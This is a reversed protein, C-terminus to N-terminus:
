LGIERMANYLCSNKACERPGLQPGPTGRLIMLVSRAAAQCEKSLPGCVDDAEELYQYDCAIHSTGCLYCIQHVGCLPLLEQNLDGSLLDVGRCREAMAEIIPCQNSGWIYNKNGLYADNLPELRRPGSLSQEPGEFDNSLEPYRPYNNNKKMKKKVQTENESKEGFDEDKTNSREKKILELSNHTGDQVNLPDIINRLLHNESDMSQRLKQLARRMKELSYATALRSLVRDKVRQIEEPNDIGEHAGTYKITEGIIFDEISQLKKDMNELKEPDLKGRSDKDDIAMTDFQIVSRKKMDGNNSNGDGATMAKKKRDLGFYNSWDVSKKQRMGKEDNRSKTLTTAHKRTASERKRKRENQEGDTEQDHEQENNDEGESEDQNESEEQEEDGEEEHSERSSPRNSRKGHQHEKLSHGAHQHHETAANGKVEVEKATENETKQKDEDMELRMNITSSESNKTGKVHNDNGEAISRKHKEEARSSFLESLEKEVNEDTKGLSNLAKNSGESVHKTSRKAVPFRKAREASYPLWPLVPYSRKRQMLMYYPPIRMRKDEEFLDGEIQNEQQQYKEWLNRLADKYRDQREHEQAREIERLFQDTLEAHEPPVNLTQPERERFISTPSDDNLNTRERFFSSRKDNRTPPLLKNSDEDFEYGGFPGLTLGGHDAEYSERELYKALQKNLRSRQKNTNTTTTYAANEDEWYDPEIIAPGLASGYFNHQQPPLPPPANLPYEQRHLEDVATQLSYPSRQAWSGDIICLMQLWLLTFYKVGMKHQTRNNSDKLVANRDSHFDRLHLKEHTKLYILGSTHCTHIKLSMNTPVTQLCQLFPRQGHFVVFGNHDHTNNYCVQAYVYYLGSERITLVGNEVHFYQDVNVENTWSTHGIYMDGGYPNLHFHAAPKSILLSNVSSLASSKASKVTPIKHRRSGYHRMPSHKHNHRGNSVFSKNPRQKNKNKSDKYKEFDDYLNDNVIRSDNNDNNNNEENEYNRFKEMLDDYSEYDDVDDESGDDTDDDDDNGDNDNDNLDDEELVIDEEYDEGESDTNEKELDKDKFKDYTDPFLGGVVNKYEEEFDDLDDLYPIGLRKQLSEIIKNLTIVEKQLDKISNANNEHAFRLNTILILHWISCGLLVFTLVIALASTINILFYSRRTHQTISSCANTKHNALSFNDVGSTPTIFPKLTEVTM